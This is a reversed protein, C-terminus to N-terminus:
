YIIQVVVYNIISYQIVIIRLKFVDDIYRTNFVADRVEVKSEYLVYIIDDDNRVILFCM